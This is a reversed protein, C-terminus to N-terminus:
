KRRKSEMIRNAAQKAQRSNSYKGYLLRKILGNKHAKNCEIRDSIYNIYGSIPDATLDDVNDAIWYILDTEWQYLQDIQGNYDYTSLATKIGYLKVMEAFDTANGSARMRM